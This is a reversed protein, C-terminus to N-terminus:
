HVPAQLPLRITIATGKGATSELAFEGGLAEVRDALGSLGSGPRMTAGGKGDDRIFARLSDTSATAAITVLTANAHKTVNALAESIVYYAAIEVSQPLRKPLDIQLEVQVPSQRRLSKLAPALGNNSLLAPHIGRSIKRVDDLIRQIKRSVREFDERHVGLATPIKGQIAQLDLGLSVLQQQTGDHLDREIRRRAEDAATVIRARSSILESRTTANSVATGLLEAFSALRRESGEPSVNATDWGAILAGWIEGDVLVPAGVECRIGRSRIVAALQGEAEKYDDFRQPEGSNRILANISEGQLPVCTGTPVHTDRLSWGAMTLNLGDPTFHALNVSTASIVDGTEECVADFVASSDAGRAVLTAVRRLAAQEKAMARLDNRTQANSIAAAALETFRALRSETEEPLPEAGPAVAIMAGWTKGDVMIPVGVAAQVGAARVRRAITGPVESYDDFRVPRGTRLVTAVISPGDLVLNDGIAFSDNTLSAIVTATGNPEYRLMSILPAELLNAAEQAVTAFVEEPSPEQAVLTAVRRLAAQEDVLRRLDDQAQTNAIATALLETFSVLRPEIDGPLPNQDSSLATIVGWTRGNVIVPVGFGAKIGGASLEDSITDDLGAYSEIRAPRGTERVMKWLGPHPPLRTGVRFLRSESGRGWAGILTSSGDAEYRAMGIAPVGLVNVVEEAVQRFIDTAAAGAAVLTAVRRLAAQEAVLRGLEDQAVKRETIDQLMGIAGVSRGDRGLIEVSADAIWRTEGTRTTIRQDCRWRPFEGSRTRRVAEDNTLGSQESLIISDQIMTGWRNPTFEAADYGTLEEVGDGIFTYSDTAYEYLYPVGGAQSMARRYLGESERLKDHAETNSIATAVLDTFDALRRETRAPLPKRDAVAILGWLRGEVIIPAGVGSQIGAERAREAIAGSAQAFDDLRASRGSAKVLTSITAGDLPWRTGTQFPHEGTAGVVCATDDPEYRSVEVVPARFARAVEDAVTAFVIAPDAGRAVCTAIRGLAAHDDVLRQLDDAARRADSIDRIAGCILLPEGEVLSLALEVPFESGDARMGTLELRRGLVREEGTEVFRSFARIHRERLAPPVILEALPRGLAESRSYGFTREAAPNFEVVLGSADALIICDLAARLYATARAEPARSAARERIRGQRRTSSLKLGSRM